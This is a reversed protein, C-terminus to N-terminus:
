EPVDLRRRRGLTDSLIGWAMVLDSRLLVLAAIGYSVVGAATCVFLLASSPLRESLLQQVGLVAALMITTCLLIYPFRRLPQLVDIRALEWVKYLFFPLLIYNCAVIAGVTMAIGFQAALTFLVLGMATYALHFFLLLRSNGLALIISSSVGDICRMMGLLMLIQIPTIVPLWEDGLLATVLLPTIAAFGLFAPVAVISILRVAIDFYRGIRVADGELRSVAPMTVRTLPGVLMNTLLTLPKLALVYIGSASPSVLTGLIVKPLEDNFIRVFAQMALPASYQVFEQCRSFSYQLRPRWASFIFVFLSELFPRLLGMVVLSWIGYGSLAMAIGVMGSIVIGLITRIAFLKFQLHRRLYAGPIAGFANIVVILSTWHTIEELEPQGLTAAIAGAGLWLLGSLVAGIALLLWFVSDLHLEDITGRQVIADPFGQQVPISLIVPAATALAMLGIAEPGLINALIMFVVLNTGDRGFMEVSTWVVGSVIKQGLRPM